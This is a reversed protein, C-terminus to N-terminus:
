KSKKNKKRQEDELLLKAILKDAKSKRPDKEIVFDDIKKM